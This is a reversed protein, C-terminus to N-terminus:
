SARRPIPWAFEDWWPPPNFPDLGPRAYRWTKLLKGEHRIEEQSHILGPRPESASSYFQMFLHRTVTM